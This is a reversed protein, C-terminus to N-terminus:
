GKKEEEGEEEPMGTCGNNRLGAVFVEALQVAKGGLQFAFCDCKGSHPKEVNGTLQQKRHTCVCVCVSQSLEVEVM